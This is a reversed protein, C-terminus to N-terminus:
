CSIDGHKKKPTGQTSPSYNQKESVLETAPMNPVIPIQALVGYGATMRKQGIVAM